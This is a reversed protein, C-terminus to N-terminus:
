TYVLLTFSSRDKREREWERRQNETKIKEKGKLNM